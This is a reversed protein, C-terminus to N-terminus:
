FSANAGFWGAVYVNGAADVAVANAEDPITSGARQAWAFTPAFQASANSAALLLGAAAMTALWKSKLLPSSCRALRSLVLVKAPVNPLNMTRILSGNRFNGGCRM